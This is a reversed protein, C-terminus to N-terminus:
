RAPAVPSQRAGSGDELGLVACDLLERLQRAGFDMLTSKDMGTESALTRLLQEGTASANERTLEVLRASVANLEMFRVRDNRDRYVVLYTPAEPETLQYGPGIHHVPYHYSLLWALPSLRPIASLPDECSLVPPVEEQSVDLALEVWEYHALETMFVPDVERMQHEELLFQLFEQGIELFYPTHCSHGDIFARVLGHWDEVSYLSRLVPFGSSIFSEINNFVLRKYIDLRRQEVGAPAPALEPNRLYQAMQLQSDQLGTSRM